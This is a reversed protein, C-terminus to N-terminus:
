PQNLNLRLTRPREIWIDVGAPVIEIIRLESDDIYSIRGHNKGLYDGVKVRHIGDSGRILGWLGDDNSISGVLTFSEVDFQELFQKARNDDPKVDSNIELDDARVKVPPEFPSRMGSAKYAFAEYPRFKPLPEINGSPRAQAEAMFQDLDSHGSPGSCGALLLAGSMVGVLPLLKRVSKMM